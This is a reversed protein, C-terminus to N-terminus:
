WSLESLDFVPGDECILKSGRGVPLACAGCAALGACPLASTVLVQMPCPLHQRQELGLTHRLGPLAERPLDLALFDMEGLSDSVM